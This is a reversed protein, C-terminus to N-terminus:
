GKIGYLSLRSGSVLGNTVFATISTVSATSRWLGSNM